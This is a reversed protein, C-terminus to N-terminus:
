VPLRLRGCWLGGGRDAQGHALVRGVDFQARPDPLRDAPGPRRAKEEREIREVLGRLRSEWDSRASDVLRGRPIRLVLSMGEVIPVVDAGLTEALLARSLPGGLGGMPLRLTGKPRALELGGAKALGVVLEAVDAEQRANLGVTVDRTAGPGDGLSLVVVMISAALGM